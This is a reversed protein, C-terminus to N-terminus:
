KGLKAVERELELATSLVRLNAVAAYKHLRMDVTAGIKDPASGSSVTVRDGLLDTPEAITKASQEFRALRSGLGALATNTLANIGAM